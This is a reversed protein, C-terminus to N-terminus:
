REIRRRDLAQEVPRVRVRRREGRLEVLQELPRALAASDPRGVDLRVDLVVGGLVDVPEEVRDAPPVRAVGERPELPEEVPAVHACPSRSKSFISSMQGTWSKPISAPSTRRMSSM